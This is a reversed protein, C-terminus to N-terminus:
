NFGLISYARNKKEHIHQDFKLYLYFIVGLDKVQQKCSRISNAQRQTFFFYKNATLSLYSCRVVKCKSVNLSVLWKDLWTKIMDLDNQLLVSDYQTLIHKFIKGDDAYLFLECSSCCEVIDNIFIIFLMPRVIAGQPVESFM